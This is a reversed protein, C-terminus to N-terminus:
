VVTIGADWLLVEELLSMTRQSSNVSRVVKRIDGIWRDGLVCLSCSCMKLVGFVLVRVVGGSVKYRIICGLTYRPFIDVLKNRLREQRIM